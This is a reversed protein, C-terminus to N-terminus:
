AENTLGLVRKLSELNREAEQHFMASAERLGDPKGEFLARRIQKKLSEIDGFEYTLMARTEGVNTAVVPVGCWIAEVRSIGYSEQGFARVFTDSNKLIPFVDDNRVNEVITIWDRGRLVEDRHSEDRVFAGDLFVLGIDLGTEARLTEIAQAAHKFGYEPIFAGVCCVRKQRNLHSSLLEKLDPSLHTELADPNPPLLCPILTIKQKVKIDERLWRELEPQVVVFESVSRIGLSFLIRKLSNFKRYRAPLSGDLVMKIWRLNLLPKLTLWIPALIPNPYELHFHSCDLVLAGYGDTLLLRLIGLRRHKFYEVDPDHRDKYPYSWIKIGSGKTFKRLASVFVSVGGYPPPLPGLIRIKRSVARSINVYLFSRPL